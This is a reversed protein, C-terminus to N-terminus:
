RPDRDSKQLGFPFGGPGQFRKTKGAQILTNVATVKVKFLAEVATKIMPKTATM